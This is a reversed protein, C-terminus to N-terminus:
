KKQNVKIAKLYNNRINDASLSHANILRGIEEKNIAGIGKSIIANYFQEIDNKLKLLSDNDIVRTNESPNVNWGKIDPAQLTVLTHQATSGYHKKFWEGSQLKRFKM